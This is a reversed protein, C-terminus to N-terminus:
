GFVHLGLENKTIYIRPAETTRLTAYRIVSAEYITRRGNRIVIELNYYNPFKSLYKIRAGAQQLFKEWAKKGRGKVKTLVPPNRLVMFGDSDSYSSGPKYERHTTQEKIVLNYTEAPGILKRAQM